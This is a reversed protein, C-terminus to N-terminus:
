SQTQQVAPCSSGVWALGSVRPRLQVTRTSCGAWVCFGGASDGNDDEDDGDTAMEGLLWLLVLLLLMLMLLLAMIDPWTNRGDAVDSGNGSTHDDCDGTGDTKDDDEAPM